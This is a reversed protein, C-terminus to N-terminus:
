LSLGPGSPPRRTREELLRLRQEGEISIAASKIGPRKAKRSLGSDSLHLRPAGGLPYVDPLAHQCWDQAETGGAGAHLQLIVNNADYEGSLLTTM